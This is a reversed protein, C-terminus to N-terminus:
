CVGASLPIGCGPQGVALVGVDAGGAADGDVLGPVADAFCVWACSVGVGEDVLEAVQVFVVAVAVSAECSLKFERECGDFLPESVFSACLGRYFPALM